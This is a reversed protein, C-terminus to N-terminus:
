QIISKIIKAIEMIDWAQAQACSNITKYFVTYHLFKAKQYDYFIKSLLQNTYLSLPIFTGMKLDFTM